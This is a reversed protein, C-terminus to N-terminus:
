RNDSISLYANSVGFDFSFFLFIIGKTIVHLLANGFTFCIILLCQYKNCIFEFRRVASSFSGRM